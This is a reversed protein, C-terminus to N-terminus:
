GLEYELTYPKNPYDDHTSVSTFRGQLGVFDGTGSGPVVEGDSRAESGDYTGVEQIVFSGQRDGIRGVFHEYGAYSAADDAAYCMLSESTSEGDLDGAYRLRINARSLKKGDEMELYPKEDWAEITAAGSIKTPM